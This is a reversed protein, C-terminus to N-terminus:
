ERFLTEVRVLKLTDVSKIAGRSPGDFSWWGREREFDYFEVVVRRRGSTVREFFRIEAVNNPDLGFYNCLDSGFDKGWTSGTIVTIRTPTDVEITM